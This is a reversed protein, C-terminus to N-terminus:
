FRVNYTLKFRLDTATAAFSNDFTSWGQNLVLFFERGPEIIYRLRSNLGLSDSVDDWQIFNSWSIFPDFLLDVKAQVLNVNFDGAELNVDNFNYSLGFLSHMSARWQLEVGYDSRTGDFFSGTTFDFEASLPRRDSTDFSFGYRFFDYTGTPITIGDSIEFGEDLVEQRPVARLRFSEGSEWEIGFPILAVSQTQTRGSSDTILSPAVRFQLRRIDTHLRPNYSAASSYQRIGTRRVFGMAPRFNDEIVTYTADLQVEDNPYSLRAQYALDDGSSLSDETKLLYSNFRLNKDGLFTDTRLNIDAGATYSQGDGTPNGHTFIVGVDSQDLVNKSYRGVFLNRSDLEGGDGTVSDLIGFSHGETTSTLKANALLPVTGGGGDLGIRRSFFPIIDRTAGFNFVGSDELFFRRKEPFFLPFRTLNVQRGDVETEAFDTNFSLSLKTNSSLRYFVDLGADIDQHEGTDDITRAGSIYPTLDLGSGQRMDHFGTLTGANAVSFFRIRPEPSAWRVVENKFRLHRRVNFGWTDGDPDFNISALPIRLEAFWGEDTIRSRGHWITDWRKNFSSGNRTILADGKSGAAGIQFWFASRKDHFTDFLLEVRDDPDLNADRALQTARIRSPNDDFCRLGIYLNTEDFALLIETRDTAPSGAHPLVQRMPSLPTCLAWAEDNLRGDIEPPPVEAPLRLMGHTPTPAQLAFALLLTLGPM